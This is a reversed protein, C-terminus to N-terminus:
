GAYKGLRDVPLHQRGERLAREEALHRGYRAIQKTTSCGALKALSHEQLGSDLCRSAWSHRFQHPHHGPIGARKGLKVIM